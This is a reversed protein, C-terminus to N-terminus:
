SLDLAICGELFNDESAVSFQRNQSLFDIVFINMNPLCKGWCYWSPLPSAHAFKEKQCFRVQADNFNVLTKLCNLAKTKPIM